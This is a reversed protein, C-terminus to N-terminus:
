SFLEIKTQVQEIEQRKHAILVKEAERQEVTEKHAKEQQDLLNECLSIAQEVVKVAAEVRNNFVSRIHESIKATLKDTSEVFKECGTEFVKLKLQDHIGSM